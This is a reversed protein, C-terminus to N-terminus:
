RVIAEWRFVAFWFVVSVYVIVLWLVFEKRVSEEMVVGVAFAVDLVIISYAPLPWDSFKGSKMALGLAVSSLLMMVIATRLRIQVRRIKPKDESMADGVPRQACTGGIERPLMGPDVPM